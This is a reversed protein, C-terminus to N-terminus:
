PPPCECRLSSVIQPRDPGTGGLRYCRNCYLRSGPCTGDRRNEALIRAGLGCDDRDHWVTSGFTVSHYPDVSAM